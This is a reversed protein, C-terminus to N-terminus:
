YLSLLRILHNYTYLMLLSTVHEIINSSLITQDLTANRWLSINSLIINWGNQLYMGQRLTTLTLWFVLCWRRLFHHSGSRWFPYLHLMFPGNGGMHIWSTLHFCHILSWSYFAAQPKSLHISGPELWPCELENMGLVPSPLLGAPGVKHLDHNRSPCEDTIAVGICSSFFFVGPVRHKMFGRM